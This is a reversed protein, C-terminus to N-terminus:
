LSHYLKFLSVVWVCVRLPPGMDHAKDTLWNTLWFLWLELVVRLPKIFKKYVPLFIIVFFSVFGSKSFLDSKSFPPALNKSRLFLEVFIKRIRQISPFGLVVSWRPSDCTWLYNHEKHKSNGLDVIQLSEVPKWYTNCIFTM